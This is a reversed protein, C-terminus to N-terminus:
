KRWKTEDEKIKKMLAMTEDIHQVAQKMNERHKAIRERITQKRKKIEALKEETIMIAKM